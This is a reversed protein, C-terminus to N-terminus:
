AFEDDTGYDDPKEICECTGDFPALGFGIVREKYPNWKCIGVLTDDMPSKSCYIDNDYGKEIANNHVILCKQENLATGCIVQGGVSFGNSSRTSCMRSFIMAIFYGLIVFCLCKLIEELDYKM